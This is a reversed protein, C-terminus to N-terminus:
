HRLYRKIIEGLLEQCIPKVYAENAGALLCRQLEEEDSYCTLVIIPVDQHSPHCRIARILEFGSMDPLGIDLFLLDYSQQLLELTQKATESIEVRCGMEELMHKHVIQILTNDEILLVRPRETEDHIVFSPETSVPQTDTRVSVAPAVVTLFRASFYFCSGQQPISNVQIKGGMLKVLKKVISLGLGTGSTNAHHMYPTNVQYFRKFISKQDQPAIGIGTDEVAIQLEAATNTARLCTVRITVQGKETFKIANGVLNILIQQLVRADSQIMDPANVAYDLDLSLAKLKATGGLMTMISEILERLNLPSPQLEVQSSALKSYDLINNILSLLYTGSHIIYQLYETQQEVSLHHQEILRAFGLVSTLPTRLEHSIMALFQSKAHNAAEAKQKALELNKEIQKRETIDFSVGILGTLNGHRDYLPAKRSLYTTPEGKTNLGTEEAHQEQETEIIKQDTICVHDALTPSLLETDHKGIIDESSAGKMIIQALNNNCGLYYGQKDKWYVNGPIMSIITRLADVEMQLANILNDKDSDQM